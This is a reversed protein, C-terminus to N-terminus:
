QQNASEERKSRERREIETKKRGGEARERDRKKGKESETERPDVGTRQMKKNNTRV